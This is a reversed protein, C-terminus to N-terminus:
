DFDVREREREASVVNQKGGYKNMTGLPASMQEVLM